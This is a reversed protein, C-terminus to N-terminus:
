LFQDAQAVHNALTDLFRAADAGDVVRHDFSLDVTMRQRFAVGDDERTARERVRNVGLIAVEPPNIIPTFSDVGLVGLNTLTFTGGRLDSMTYDGSQVADTLRRREIAVEGLTKSGIDRLVPTVLGADVDVAIAVNHEEYLRHTGDEFTANFAPHEEFTASVACLVPDILSVETEIDDAEIVELVMEVDLERSATVHVANRYSDQLRNAITRRMGSLPREERVTLDSEAAAGPEQEDNQEPDPDTPAM